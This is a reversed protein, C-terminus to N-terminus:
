KPYGAELWCQILQLEEETLNKPRDSPAYDPPMGLNPDDKLTIAREMFRGNDLVGALGEYTDFIGPASGLHCGSYACSNDIIPAIDDQYNITPDDCDDLAQPEPLQDATCHSFLIFYSFLIVSLGLAKLKIMM